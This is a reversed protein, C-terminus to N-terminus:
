RDQIHHVNFYDSSCFDIVDFLAIKVFNGLVNYGQLTICEVSM